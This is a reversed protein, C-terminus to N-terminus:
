TKNKIGENALYTRGFINLQEWEAYLQDRFLEVEDFIVYKYFSLTIREFPEDMLRQKLTQKDYKNYLTM